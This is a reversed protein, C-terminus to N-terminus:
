PCSKSRVRRSGKANTIDKDTHYIKYLLFLIILCYLM